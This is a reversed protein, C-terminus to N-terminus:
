GDGELVITNPKDEKCIKVGYFLRDGCHLSSKVLRTIMTPHVMTNNLGFNNVTIWESIEKATVKRNRNLTLYAKVLLKVKGEKSWGM